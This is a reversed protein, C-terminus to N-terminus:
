KNKPLTRSKAKPADPNHATLSLIMIFILRVRNVKDAIAGWLPLFIAGAIAMISILFAISLQNVGFVEEMKVLLPADFGADTTMIVSLFIFYLLHHVTFIPKKSAEM